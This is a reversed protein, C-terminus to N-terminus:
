VKEIYITEESQIIKVFKTNSMELLCLLTIAIMYGNDSKDILQYFDKKDNTNSFLDELEKKRDQVSIRKVNFTTNVKKNMEINEYIRIIAKKIDTVSHPRLVFSKEINQNIFEDYDDTKKDLQPNNKVFNFMEESIRKYQEYEILLNILDETNKIKKQFEKGKELNIFYRSKIELLRSALLLYESSENLNINEVNYVFDVFQDALEVLALETIDMKKSKILFLLLDLPGEFDKIVFKKENKIM